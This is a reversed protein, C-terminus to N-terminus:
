KSVSFKLYYTIGDVIVSVTQENGTGMANLDLITNLKFDRTAMNSDDVTFAGGEEEENILFFVRLIYEDFKRVDFSFEKDTFNLTKPQNPQFSYPNESSAMKQQMIKPSKCTFDFIIKPCDSSSTLMYCVFSGHADRDKTSTLSNLKLTAKVTNSKVPECTRKVYSTALNVRAVSNDSLFRLVYSVPVGLSSPSLKGGTKLMQIFGDYGTVAEIDEKGDGGIILASIKTEGKEISSALDVEGGVTVSGTYEGDIHAAIEESTLKTKMFFYAIRGYTISSVYLPTKGSNMVEIADKPNTFVDEPSSPPDIDMSYYIQAFKVVKMSMESKKDYNFSANVTASASEFHGGLALSLEEKSSVEFIEFNAQIDIDGREQNIMINTMGDRVTALSPNEVKLMPSGFVAISTSITIPACDKGTKINNYKGNALDEAYILAGPYIANQTPNTLFNLDFSASAQYKQTTCIMKPTKEVKAAGVPQPEPNGANRKSITFNKARVDGSAFEGEFQFEEMQEERIADADAEFGLAGGADIYVSANGQTLPCGCPFEYTRTKEETEKRVKVNRITVSKTWNLGNLTVEIGIVKGIDPEEDITVTPIVGRCLKGGIVEGDRGTLVVRVQADGPMERGNISKILPDADFFVKYVADQGFGTIFPFLFLIAFLQNKM